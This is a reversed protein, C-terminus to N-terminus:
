RRVFTMSGRTHDSIMRGACDTSPQNLMISFALSVPSMAALSSASARM